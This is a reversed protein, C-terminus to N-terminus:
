ENLAINELDFNANINESNNLYVINSNFILNTIIIKSFIYFIFLYYYYNNSTM